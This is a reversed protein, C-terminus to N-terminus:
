ALGGMQCVIKWEADTVPQVSLRAQRVLVMRQDYAKKEFYPLAVSGMSSRIVIDSTPTFSLSPLGGGPVRQVLEQGLM